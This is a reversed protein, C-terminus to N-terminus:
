TVEYTTLQKLDQCESTNSSSSPFHDKSVRKYEQRTRELAKPEQILHTLMTMSTFQSTQTAALFFDMLEDVIFEDTFVDTNAFFLSLLDVGGNPSRDKTKSKKRKTIYDHIYARLLKFNEKVITLVPHMDLNIGLFQVGLLSVPNGHRKTLM